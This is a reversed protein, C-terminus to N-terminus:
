VGKRVRRSDSVSGRCRQAVVSESRTNLGGVANRSEKETISAAITKQKPHRVNNKRQMTQIHMVLMVRDMMWVSYLRTLIWLRRNDWVGFNRSRNKVLFLDDRRFSNEKDSSSMLVMSNFPPLKVSIRAKSNKLM